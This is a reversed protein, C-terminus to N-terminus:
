PVRRSHGCYNVSSDVITSLHAARLFRFVAFKKANRKLAIVAYSNSVDPSLGVACDGSLDDEGGEIFKSSALM